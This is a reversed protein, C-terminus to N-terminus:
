AEEEKERQALPALREAYARYTALLKPTKERIAGFNGAKGAAEMEAAADSLGHAGVLRAMSKLSHVKLTYRGFDEERFLREIENAKDAASAAFVSLADMYDDATECNEVGSALDLGPVGSLWGPLNSIEEKTRTRADGNQRGNEAGSKPLYAMLLDSLQQPEVPKKLVDAFGAAKYLNSNDKGTEVTHCIVPVERGQERFIEKLRVLTDVGDIGAPMRHDLLILDYRNERCLAICSEGSEALDARVGHSALLSSLITRNIRMDDVILVRPQPKTEM